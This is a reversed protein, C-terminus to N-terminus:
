GLLWALRRLPAYRCLAVAEIADDAVAGYVRSDTSRAPQDGLLFWGEAERSVVRKVSRRGAARPERFVVIRGVAPALWRSSLTLLQDGPRLTPSM